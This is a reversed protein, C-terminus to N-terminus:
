FPDVVEIQPFEKQIYNKDKELFLLKLNPGADQTFYIPLGSQRLNWIRHILEITEPLFYSIAPMSTLMMAHMALANSEATQGLLTFDLKFIAEKLASLDKAVEDPWLKYFLSTEVTRQMAARSSIPKQQADVMLLGIKFEPWAFPLLVGFSDFGNQLEGVQWEVFGPWISRCASGSGLRALISLDKTSLQWDFLQNLALVLSAFGSASSALGAAIPINSFTHIEFRFNNNTRFLNLFSILRMVFPSHPDCEVDNLYIVDQSKEIMKIKTTSGKKGLGVSLSSTVPLNLETNRKGWYKCLAINAPAFAHGEAKLNYHTVITKVVDSKKM